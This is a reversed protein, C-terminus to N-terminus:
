QLSGKALETVQHILRKLLEEIGLWGKALLRDMSNSDEYLVALLAAAEQAQRLHETLKAFALGKTPRGALTEYSM